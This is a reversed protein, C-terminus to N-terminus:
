SRLGTVRIPDCWGCTNAASPHVSPPCVFANNTAAKVTGGELRVSVKADDGAPPRYYFHLRDTGGGSQVVMTPEAIGLQARLTRWGDLEARGDVEVGFLRSGRLNILFNRKEGFTAIEGRYADRERQAPVTNQWGATHPAKFLTYREAKRDVPCWAPDVQKTRVLALELSLAVEALHELRQRRTLAAM